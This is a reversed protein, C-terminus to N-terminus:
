AYTVSVGEIANDGSDKATFTLTTATTGDATPTYSAATFTTFTASVAPAAEGDLSGFGFSEPGAVRLAVTVQM